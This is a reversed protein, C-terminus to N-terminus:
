ERYMIRVLADVVEALSVTRGETKELKGRMDLIREYTIKWLTVSKTEGTPNNFGVEFDYTHTDSM